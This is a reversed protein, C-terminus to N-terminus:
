RSPTQRQPGARRCRTPPRPRGARPRRRHHRHGERARSRRCLGQRGRGSRRPSRQSHLIQLGHRRTQRSGTRGPLRSPLAQLGAGFEPKGFNRLCRGRVVPLRGLAGGFQGMTGQPRSHLTAPRTPEAALSRRERDARQYRRTGRRTQLSRRRCAQPFQLLGRDRERSLAALALGHRAHLFEVMTFPNSEPKVGLIPYAKLFAERADDINWQDLLSWGRSTYIAAKIPHVVVRQNGAASQKLTESQQLVSEAKNFPYMEYEEPQSAHDSAESGWHILTAVKFLSPTDDGEQAEDFRRRGEGAKAGDKKYDGLLQSHLLASDALCLRRLLHNAPYLERAEDYNKRAEEILQQKSRGSSTSISIAALKHQMLARAHLDMASWEKDPPHDNEFQRLSDELPVIIGKDDAQDDSISKLAALLRVQPQTLSSQCSSAVEWLWKQAAATNPNLYPEPKDGIIRGDSKKIADAVALRVFPTYWPMEDFWWQGNLGPLLLLNNEHQVTSAPPSLSAPEAFPPASSDAAQSQFGGGAGLGQPPQLHDNGHHALWVVMAALAAVAGLSAAVTVVKRRRVPRSSRPQNGGAPRRPGRRRSAPMDATGTSGSKARGPRVSEGTDHLRLAQTGPTDIASDRPRIEPGPRAKWSASVLSGMGAPDAFQQMAAAVEGPTAFRDQPEKAMLRALIRDLEAPCGPCAAALSPVPAVAHAMLKRRNSDFSKGGFPPQGTLLFFLTCGLSYIDARIDVTSSDECQEPAMYEVTGIMTGQVTLPDSQEDAPRYDHCLKALGLDLIKVVGARNLMLNAPKIDRHVLGKMYAYQLGTAAQRIVECAAGVSLPGVKKELRDIVLVQLNLGDVYEMVLFHIGNAESAYYARVVNPHDLGGISQMERRFRALATPADLFRDPLVKVADIRNLLLQRARYVVGMGGKGLEELLEYDGLRRVKVVRRFIAEVRAGDAPFRDQYQALSFSEGARARNELEIELLGELLKDRGSAAARALFAEIEPRSGAQWAEEFEDCLLEKHILPSVGPLTPEVEESNSM